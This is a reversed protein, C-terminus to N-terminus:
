SGGEAKRWGGGAQLLRQRLQQLDARLLDLLQLPQAHPRHFVRQVVQRAIVVVAAVGHRNMLQAQAHGGRDHARQLRDVRAARRAPHHDDLGPDVVRRAHYAHAPEVLLVEHSQQPRLHAPADGHAALGLQIAAAELEHRAVVLKRVLVLQRM